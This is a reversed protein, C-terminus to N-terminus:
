RAKTLDKEHTYEGPRFVPTSSGTGADPPVVPRKAQQEEAFRVRAAGAEMEALTNAKQRATPEPPVYVPPPPANRIEMVQREFETPNSSAIVINRDEKEAEKAEPAKEVQAEKAAAARAEMDLGLPKNVDVVPQTPSGHMGNGNIPM